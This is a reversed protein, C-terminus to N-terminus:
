LEVNDLDVSDQDLVVPPEVPEPLDDIADSTEPEEEAPPAESLDELDTPEASPQANAGVARSYGRVESRIQGNWPEGDEVDIVVAKGVFRRADVQLRKKPTPMGLAQMFGVVRFLAKETITLRDVLTAGDYEGGVVRLWVNIMPDGKKTTTEETDEVQVRYTGPAIRASTREKYNTLDVVIM